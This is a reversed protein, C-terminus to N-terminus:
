QFRTRTDQHSNRHVREVKSLGNGNNCGASCTLTLLENAHDGTVQELDPSNWAGVVRSLWRNIARRLGSTSAGEFTFNLESLVHKLLTFVSRESLPIEFDDKSFIEGFADANVVAFRHTLFLQIM